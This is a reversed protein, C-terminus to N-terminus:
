KTKKYGKQILNKIGYDGLLKSLTCTGTSGEKDIISLSRSRDIDEYEGLKFLSLNCRNTTLHLEMHCATM